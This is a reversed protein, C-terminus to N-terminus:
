APLSQLHPLLLLMASFYSGKAVWNLLIEFRLRARSLPVLFRQCNIDATM